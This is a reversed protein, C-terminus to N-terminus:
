RCSARPRARRGPVTRAAFAPLPMGQTAEALRARLTAADPLSRHAGDAGGRQAARPHGNRLRRTRGSGGACRAAAGAAETNRLAAQEDAGYAVVLTGGDSAGIDDRLMDDLQQAAKPVPSMAGLDARWLHGGQWLVLALAAVGLAALLWRLRPLGRVLRRGDAGHSARMGMGTAGDPALMPLVYRTVLAAAVLGAISFVGLQALGPFGSFVLAAFGCM